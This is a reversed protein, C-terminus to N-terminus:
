NPREIFVMQLRDVIEVLDQQFILAEPIVSPKRNQLFQLVKLFFVGLRVLVADQFFRSEVLKELLVTLRSDNGSLNPVRIGFNTFIILDEYLIFKCPDACIDSILM